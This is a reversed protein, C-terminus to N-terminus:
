KIMELEPFPKLGARKLKENDTLEEEELAGVMNNSRPDYMALSPMSPLPQASSELMFAAPNVIGAASNTQAMLNSSDIFDATQPQQFQSQIFSLANTGYKQDYGDMRADVATQESRMREAMENFYNLMGM